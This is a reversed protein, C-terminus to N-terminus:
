GTRGVSDFIGTITERCTKVAVYRHNERNELFQVVAGLQPLVARQNRKLM